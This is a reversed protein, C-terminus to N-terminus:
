IIIYIYKNYLYLIYIYYIMNINYIDGAWSATPPARSASSSM